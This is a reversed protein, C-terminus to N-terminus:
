EPGHVTPQGNPTACRTTQPRFLLGLPVLDTDALQLCRAVSDAARGAGLRRWRALWDPAGLTQRAAQVTWTTMLKGTGGM